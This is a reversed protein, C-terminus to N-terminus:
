KKVSRTGGTGPGGTKEFGNRETGGVLGMLRVLGSSQFGRCHLLNGRNRLWRQFMQDVPSAWVFEVRVWAADAGACSARELCHECVCVYVCIENTTHGKGEGSTDQPCIKLCRGVGCCYYAVIASPGVDCGDEIRNKMATAMPTTIAPTKM